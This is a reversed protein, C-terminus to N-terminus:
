QCRGPCSWSPLHAKCIRQSLSSPATEGLGALSLNQARNKLDPLPHDLCSPKLWGCHPYTIPYLWGYCSSIHTQGFHLNLPSCSSLGHKKQNLSLCIQIHGYIHTAHKPSTPIKYPNESAVFMPNPWSCGGALKCKVMLSHTNFGVFSPITSVQSALIPAKKVDM